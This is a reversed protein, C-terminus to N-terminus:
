LITNTKGYMLMFRGHTYMHEKETTTKKKLRLKIEERINIIEKRRNVKPKTLEKKKRIRKPSLNVQKDSIKRAEQPLATDSHVEKKSSSKRYEM